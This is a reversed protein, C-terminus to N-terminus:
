SKGARKILSITAGSPWVNMCGRWPKGTSAGNLPAKRSHPTSAHVKALAKEEKRFFRPNAIEEGTSLSAFTTLGVDIGVTEPCHPLREPECEVSFSAYWKGTASRRITLTKIKGRMPRHLVMKIHGIGSASLKGQV